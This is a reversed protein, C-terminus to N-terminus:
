ILLCLRFLTIIGAIPITYTTWHLSTFTLHLVWFGKKVYRGFLCSTSTLPFSAGDTGNRKIVVISAFLM